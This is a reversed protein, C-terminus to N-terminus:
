NGSVRGSKADVKVSVVHGNNKLVKVKYGPNGKVKARQVKLVKGGVKGKVLRAAQQSNGVRFSQQQEIYLYPSAAIPKVMVILLWCLMLLIQRIGIM